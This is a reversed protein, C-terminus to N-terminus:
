LIGVESERRKVGAEIDGWLKQTATYQKLTEDQGCDAYSAILETICKKQSITPPIALRERHMLYACTAMGIGSFLFDINQKTNQDNWPKGLCQDIFALENLARNNKEFFMSFHLYLRATTFDRREIRCFGLRRYVRAILFEDKLIPIKETRGARIMYATKRSGEKDM